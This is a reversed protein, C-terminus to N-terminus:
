PKAAKRQQVKVHHAWDAQAGLPDRHSKRGMSGCACAWYYLYWGDSREFITLRFTHGSM